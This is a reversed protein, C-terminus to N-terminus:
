RLEPPMIAGHERDWTGEAADENYTAYEVVGVTPALWLSDVGTEVLDSGASITHDVVVLRVNKWFLEPGHGGGDLWPLDMESVFRGEGVLTLTGEGPITATTQDTWTGAPPLTVFTLPSDFEVEFTEGGDAEGFGLYELGGGAQQQVDWGYPTTYTADYWTRHYVGGGIADFQIHAENQWENVPTGDGVDGEAGVEAYEYRRGDVLPYYDATGAVAATWTTAATQENGALDRYGQFTVEMPLGSPLPAPLPVTLTRYDPSWVPDAGHNEVVWFFEANVRVPDAGDPIVPESFTIRLYTAGPDVTAGSAPEFSAITPPTTDVEQGTTFSVTAPAALNRGGWDQAATSVTLTITQDAPLDADPDVVMWSGEGEHVTFALPNEDADTLTVAAGFTSSNMEASFLLLVVASRNVGTAGDAPDSDLFVLDASEVYFTVQQPAALPNGALDALGSGVTVTVGAGTDWASHAVELTRADAWDLSTVSGASLTIQGAATATDMDESFVITITADTAVGTAGSPPSFSVVQPATTDQDQGGGPDAPDDDDGCASLLGAALLLALLLSLLRLRNM